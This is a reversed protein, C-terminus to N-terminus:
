TVRVHPYKTLILPEGERWTRTLPGSYPDHAIRKLMDGVFWSRRRFGKFKNIRKKM